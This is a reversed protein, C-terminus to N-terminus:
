PGAPAWAPDDSALQGLWDLLKVGGSTQYAGPNWFMAHATSSAGDVEFCAAEHDAGHDFASSALKACIGELGATFTLADMPATSTVGFFGRMAADRTTSLLALRDAPHRAHVGTWAQSLDTACGPCVAGLTSALGWADWWASLLQAPMEATGVFTPGSDDVLAADLSTAAGPDWAAHVLDLALLAGYGGASFGSVVVQPPRAGVEQVVRAVALQLNAYGGHRWTNGAGFDQTVGGGAHVDGTCYPVFVHTWTAFPNGALGRDLVSNPKLNPFYGEFEIRGFRRLADPPCRDASWCAGGGSIVLLLNASAGRSIWIGTGTVGDACIMGPVDIWTDSATTAPAKV